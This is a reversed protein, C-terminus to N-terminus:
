NAEMLPRTIYGSDDTALRIKLTANTIGQTQVLLLGCNAIFGGATTRINGGQANSTLRCEEILSGNNKGGWYYEQDDDVGDEGEGVIYPPSENIDQYNNIINVMNDGLDDMLGYLGGGPEDVTNPDVQHPRARSEGYAKILGKSTTGNDDGIVHLMYDTTNGVAGQNPVSIQSAEWNYTTGAPRGAAPWDQTNKPPKNADMGADAHSSSMFIKFDRYRAGTSELGTEDATGEEQEQWHYFAKNIANVTVWNNPLRSIAVYGPGDGSAVQLEVGAVVWQKCQREMKRGIASACQALDIRFDSDDLIDFNLVSEVAAM